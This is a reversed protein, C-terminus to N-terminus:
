RVGEGIDVELLPLTRGSPRSPVDGVPRAGMAIYFGEANPDSVIRLVSGGHARAEDTAREFLLRGAGTGIHEPDVWMHELEFTSGDQTLACLGVIEEGLTACFVPHSEIFDGTLTLDDDWLALLDDDYGWHAKARRAIETLRAADSAVARRIQATTM